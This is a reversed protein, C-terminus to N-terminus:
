CVGTLDHGCNRCYLRDKHNDTDCNPCIILDEKVDYDRVTYKYGTPLGEVKTVIGSKVTIIIVKDGTM